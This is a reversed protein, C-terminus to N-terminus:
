KQKKNKIKFREWENFVTGKIKNGEDEM